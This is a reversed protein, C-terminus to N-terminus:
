FFDGRAVCIGQRIDPFKRGSLCDIKPAFVASSTACSFALLLGPFFDVDRGETGM